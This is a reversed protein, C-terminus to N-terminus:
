RFVGAARLSHDRKFDSAAANFNPMEEQRHSWSMALRTTARVGEPAKALLDVAMGLAYEYGGIAAAADIQAIIQASARRAKKRQHANM